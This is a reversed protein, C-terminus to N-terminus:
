VGVYGMTINTTVLITISDIITGDLCCVPTPAQTFLLIYVLMSYLIM